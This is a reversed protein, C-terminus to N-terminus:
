MLLYDVLVDVAMSWFTSKSYKIATSAAASATAFAIALYTSQKLTQFQGALVLWAKTSTTVIASKNEMRVRGDSRFWCRVERVWTKPLSSRPVGSEM